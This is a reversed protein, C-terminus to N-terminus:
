GNWVIKNSIQEVRTNIESISDYLIEVTSRIVSTDSSISGLYSEGGADRLLDRIDPIVNQESESTGSREIAEEKSAAISQNAIEEGQGTIYSTTSASTSTGSIRTLLGTGRSISTSLPSNYIGMKWLMSIPAMTSVLGSFVDGIMGLSSTGVLGLKILQNVNANLDVFNGMAGISPINIGGTSSQIFDNIAWISALVPNKAINSAQAFQTNAILNSILTSGSLRGPLLSMQNYLESYMGRYSLMDRSVTAISSQLNRAATLDSVNLGFTQAFASKVVNSDSMGIQIIYEVLSQMLTNATQSSLGSTLIDAYSLNSRSAAMVLLDAFKNSSLATVNGSGLYGLAQAIGSASEESFGVGVLSGLWKQVIYELETSAQSTMLSSAELLANQVNDFTTSLYETNADLNNLFRTLYAELGLRAATSDSQQLRIIRLLASNAADFTTAINDKVTNLFARQEVNSAIGKEVLQKLNSLVDETKVYPNIGLGLRIRDELNGFIDTSQFIGTGLISYNYSSGQLRANIGKQYTVYANIGTNVANISNSLVTMAKELAELKNAQQIEATIRQKDAKQEETLTAGQQEYIKLLQQNLEKERKIRENEAKKWSNTNQEAEQKLFKNQTDLKQKLWDKNYKDALKRSYADVEKVGSEEMAILESVLRSNQRKREDNFAKEVESQKYINTKFAQTIKEFSAEYDKVLEDFSVEDSVLAPLDKKNNKAM